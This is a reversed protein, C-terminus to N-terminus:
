APNRARRVEEKLEALGPYEPHLEEVKGFAAAATELDHKDFLSVIGLNLWTQWHRPDTDLSRRFEAIADDPRGMERLCIGLDTRADVLKGDEALARRYYEIAQDYKGADQYFNALRVLAQVDRPNKELAERLSAIEQFVRAMLEERGAGGEQGQAETGAEGGGSNGSGAGPGIVAGTMGLNGAEPVPAAEHKVRPVAVGWAVVYGVLFGFLIGSVLFRWQERTM